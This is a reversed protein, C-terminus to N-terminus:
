AAEERHSNTLAQLVEDYRLKELGEQLLKMPVRERQDYVKGHIGQSAHGTIMMRIKEPVGINSLRTIGTHRTSYLTLQPDNLGQKKKLRAFWKGVSDGPNNNARTLQPFLQVHGAAKIGKVYELFGLQILSRHIPVRRTSSDAKTTQDKGDHKFYLYPIGDEELIDAVNLQAPEKRRCVQFLMLLCVWYREPHKDKQARFEESGFTLM